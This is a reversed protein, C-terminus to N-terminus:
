TKRFSPGASSITPGPAIVACSSPQTDFPRTSDCATGRRDDNVIDPTASSEALV